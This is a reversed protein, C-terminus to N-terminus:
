FNRPSLMLCESDYSMVNLSSGEAPGRADVSSFVSQHSSMAFLFGPFSDIKVKGLAGHDYKSRLEAEDV